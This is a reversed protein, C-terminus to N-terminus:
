LERLLGTVQGVIISDTTVPITPFSPNDSELVRLSNKDVTLRRIQELKGDVSVVVLGENNTPIGKKVFVLDGPLLGSIDLSSDAVRLLYDAGNLPLSIDRSEDTGVIPLRAVDVEFPLLPEKIAPYGTRLTTDTDGYDGVYAWGNTTKVNIQGARATKLAQRHQFAKASLLDCAALVQAEATAPEKPAGFDFTGHHSLIMHMVLKRMPLPFDPGMAAVVTQTGLVVHGILAGEATYDGHNIGHEMEELKGIDHLLACTIVLDRNLDPLVECLKDCMAAVEASHEILGGRQSHHMSKAAVADRFRLLADPPNGFVNRLLTKLHANKVSKVLNIFRDYHFQHDDPLPALFDDLNVDSEPVSKIASVSVQGAYQGNDVNGSMLFFPGSTLLKSQEPTVNWLKAPSSGTRDEINFMAYPSGAKGQKVEPSVAIFISQTFSSGPTLQDVFKGKNM